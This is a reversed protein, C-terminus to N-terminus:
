RKDYNQEHRHIVTPSTLRKEEALRRITVLMKREMIFHPVEFFCYRLVRDRWNGDEATSRAVLWTASSSEPYLYFAWAGEAKRSERIRAYDEGNVMVLSQQPTIEAIVQYGKGHYHNKDALWVTDGALRPAQFQPKIDGVNKMNARFVNELWQYSYFGGRDQGVQVLWPWIEEPTAHILVARTHRVGLTLEDGAFNHERLNEPTGWDLIIPRFIFHHCFFLVATVYLFIILRQLIKFRDM